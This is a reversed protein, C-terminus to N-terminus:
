RRTAAGVAAALKGQEDPRGLLEPPVDVADELLLRRAAFGEGGGQGGDGGKGESELRACIEAAAAGPGHVFAAALGASGLKDQAYLNLTRLEHAVADPTVAGAGGARTRSFALAGRRFVSVSFHGSEIRVLAFDGAEEALAPAFLDAVAASATEILGLHAGRREFFSEFGRTMRRSTLQALYRAGGDRSARLRRYAVAAAEPRVPSLKRIKFLIMERLERGSAAPNEVELYFSRVATDPLALSLRRVRGLRGALEALAAEMEADPVLSEGAQEAERAREPLEVQHWQALRNEDKRRRFRVATAYGEGIELAVPPYSPRLSLSPM